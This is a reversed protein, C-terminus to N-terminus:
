GVQTVLGSVDNKLFLSLLNTATTNTTRRM